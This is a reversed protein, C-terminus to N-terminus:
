LGELKQGRFRLAPGSIRCDEGSLSGYNYIVSNNKLIESLDATGTGAM